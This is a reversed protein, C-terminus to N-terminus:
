NSNEPMEDDDEDYDDKEYDEDIGNEQEDECDEDGYNESDNMGAM